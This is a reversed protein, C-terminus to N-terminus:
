QDADQNDNDDQQPGRKLSHADWRQHTIEQESNGNAQQIVVVVQNRWGPMRHELEEGADSQNSQEKANPEFAIDVRQEVLQSSRNRDPNAIDGQATNGGVVDSSLKELQSTGLRKMATTNVAVLIATETSTHRSAFASRDAAGWPSFSGFRGGDVGDYMLNYGVGFYLIGAISYLAINKTCMMAVNKSRVM